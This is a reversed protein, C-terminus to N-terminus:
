EDHIKKESNNEVILLGIKKKGIKVWPLHPHSLGSEVRFRRDSTFESSSIDKRRLGLTQLRFTVSSPCTLKSSQRM